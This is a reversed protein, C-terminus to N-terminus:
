QVGSRTARFAHNVRYRRGQADAAFEERLARAMDDALRDYPDSVPLELLDKRVAWVCAERTGSAVRGHEQEYQRFIRQLSENRSM